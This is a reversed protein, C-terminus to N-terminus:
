KEVKEQLLYDFAPQHLTPSIILLMEGTIDLQLRRL